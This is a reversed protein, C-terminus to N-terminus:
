PWIWLFYGYVISIMHLNGHYNLFQSVGSYCQALILFVQGKKMRLCIGYVLGKGEGSYIKRYNHSM